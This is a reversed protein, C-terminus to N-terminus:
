ILEQLVQVLVGLMAIKGPNSTADDLSTVSENYTIIHIQEMMVSTVDNMLCNKKSNMM